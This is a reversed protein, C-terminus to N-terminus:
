NENRKVIIKIGHEDVSKKYPGYVSTFADLHKRITTQSCHGFKKVCLYTFGNLADEWKIFGHTNIKEYLHQEVFQSIKINHKIEPSAHDSEDYEINFTNRMNAKLKDSAIVQYDINNKKELNCKHHCLVKNRIDNHYPNNDLHDIDCNFPDVELEDYLCLNGDRELLREIDRRVERATQLKM